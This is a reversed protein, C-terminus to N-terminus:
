HSFLRLLGALKRGRNPNPMNIIRANIGLQEIRRQLMEEETVGEVAAETRLGNQVRDYFSQEEWELGEYSVPQAEHM